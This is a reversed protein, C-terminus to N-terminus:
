WWKNLKLLHTKCLRRELYELRLHVYWALFLIPVDGRCTM